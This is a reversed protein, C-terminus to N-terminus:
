EKIYDEIKITPKWGTGLLPGINATNEPMECSLGKQLRLQGDEYGAIQTLEQISIGNGTGVDIIGSLINNNLNKIIAQCVDDVHIFDRVHDTVYELTKTKLRHVFMDKRSGEGYVTTFRMGLSRPPAILEMAKKSTGYPSLWWRKACSSSAYIIRMNNTLALYFLKKSLEVNTYWYEEPNEISKRVNAIGALHIVASCNEPRWEEIDREESINRDWEIIEHGHEKLIQVLRTGIFGRSGTVSIRM